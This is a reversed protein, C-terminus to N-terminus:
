RRMARNSLTELIQVKTLDIELSSHLAMFLQLFGGYGGNFILYIYTYLSLIIPLYVFNM